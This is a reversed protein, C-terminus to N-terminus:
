HLQVTRMVRRIRNGFRQPRVWEHETASARARGLRNDNSVVGRMCSTFEPRARRNWWLFVWQGKKDTALVM